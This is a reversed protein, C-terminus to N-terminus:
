FCPDVETELVKLCCCLGLTLWLFMPLFVWSSSPNTLWDAICCFEYLVKRWLLGPFWCQPSARICLFWMGVLSSSFTLVGVISYATHFAVTQLLVFCKIPIHWGGGPEVFLVIVPMNMSSIVSRRVSLIGFYEFRIISPSKLMLISFTDFGSVTMKLSVITDWPGVWLIPFVNCKINVCSSIYGETVPAAVWPKIDSWQM